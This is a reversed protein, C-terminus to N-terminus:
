FLLRDHSCDTKIGWGFFFTAYICIKQPLYCNPCKNHQAHGATDNKAM